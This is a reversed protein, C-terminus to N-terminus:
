TPQSAPSRAPSAVPQRPLLVAALLGVAAFAAITALALAFLRNGTTLTSVLVSGAIATGLSSGLNSISRSLGSIEGQDKEPFASQVVNVSATLMAGVGVGMLFLGPVFTWISSTARAFLLLEALGIITVVFGLQVLTRQARRKAMREALVSSLLIGVTSATLVLGTNIASFGRVEQLFVSVVFFSGQMVLWQMNQTVLGLNSLRNHLLRTSLLPQKGKREWSRAHLYFWVLVLCGAVLFVWVPSVGGKPIIVTNGIKVDTRSVFWGYTRSILVGIVVLVLGVASLVTGIIDFGTIDAAAKRPVEIRYGMVIIIGVVIAQAAFSARWSIASTILGGILPGLAAGLGAAGSIVGFYKARTPLDTFAVTIIIYIPPIMLASGIGELLSYGVILVGLLPAAAAIIAGVGYVILGLMFCFKRGWLDSLKSGPIMLAAMTLTFLTIATQVGIVTTNLDKSIDSIAVNMNTCAYSAIFQCLALPLVLQRPTLQQVPIKKM